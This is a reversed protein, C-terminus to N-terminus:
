NSFRHVRFSIDKLLESANITREKYSKWLKIIVSRVRQAEKRQYRYVTGMSLLESNVKVLKAKDKLLQLLLYFQISNRGAKSNIRRHYGECDNNTRLPRDYVNIDQISWVSNSLWTTKYYNFLVLLDPDNSHMDVLDNFEKVVCVTPLFILSMLKRCVIQTGNDNKYRTGLGLDNIKRYTAQCHHFSCGKM